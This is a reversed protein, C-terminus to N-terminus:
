KRSTWENLVEQNNPGGYVYVLLPYKQVTDLNKPKILWANLPYDKSPIKIFEKNSITNLSDTLQKNDEIVISTDANVHEITIQPPVSASSYSNIFLSFDFSFSAKNNGNQASVKQKELTEYNLRYVSLKQKM